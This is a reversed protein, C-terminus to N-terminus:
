FVSPRVGLLKCCSVVDRGRRRIFPSQQMLWGNGQTARCYFKRQELSQCKPIIQDRQTNPVSKLEIVCRLDCLSKASSRMGLEAERVVLAYLTRNRFM